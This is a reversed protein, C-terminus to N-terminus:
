QDDNEEEETTAIVALALLMGVIIGALFIEWAPILALDSLWEWSYTM